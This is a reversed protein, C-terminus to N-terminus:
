STFVHGRQQTNAWMKSVSRASITNATSTRRQLSEAAKGFSSQAGKHQICRGREAYDHCLHTYPPHTCPSLVLGGPMMCDGRGGWISCSAAIAMCAHDIHAHMVHTCAAAPPPTAPPAPASTPVARASPGARRSRHGRSSGICPLGAQRRGVAPTCLARPCPSPSLGPSHCGRSLVGSFEHVSTVTGPPLLCPWSCFWAHAGACTM